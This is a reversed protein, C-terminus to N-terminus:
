HHVLKILEHFIDALYPWLAGETFPAPIITLALMLAAAVGLTRRTGNLEPWVPVNPHRLGTIGVLVGWVLWGAWCFLGMPVLVLIAARSVWRHAKPWISYVIHGGDLQGGPLLNLSTAFMGFWAAVAVPHMHIQSLANARMVNSFPALLAHGVHFILPYGFELDSPPMGASSRSLLLGWIMAPVAVVFGSIPGGIGIDFLAARTRIASKIRIFAGLTGILTPAPIFFPLTANVGYHRCYLYHGMEHALLIIMLTLSFALGHVMQSPNRLIWTLPFKPVGETLTFTPLNANFNLQLQAGIVTTTLFTLVLLLLHLWYRPRTPVIVFVDIAPRPEPIAPYIPPTSDSM